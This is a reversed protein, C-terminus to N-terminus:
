EQMEAPQHSGWTEPAGVKPLRQRQDAHLRLFVVRSIRRKLCRLAMSTSHGEAIKKDYYARGASDTLRIQTLAVRHLAANVERNGIRARRMQGASAGSWRPAPAVGAFRAFAAENPFRDVLAAEGIIRAACLGGVGPVEMLTPAIERVQRVIRRELRNAEQSFREVDDLEALALEATVGAQTMLWRRLPDRHRAASLAGPNREPDLEHVRWLIRTWAATRQDVLVKRRDVLLKIERSVPDHRSVPLNPERLYARAAALADIPDSKGPVRSTTHRTRAMLTTPVRVCKQGAALLFQEFRMTVSRVDEIAWTIDADACKRRVWCLAQQQGSDTADVTKEGCRRGTADVVVLTHSRKHADVGVIFVM